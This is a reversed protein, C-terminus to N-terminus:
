TAYNGVEIGWSIYGSRRPTTQTAASGKKFHLGTTMVIREGMGQITDQIGTAGSPTQLSARKYTFLGSSNM